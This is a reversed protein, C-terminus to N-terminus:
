INTKMTDINDFIYEIDKIYENVNDCIGILYISKIM